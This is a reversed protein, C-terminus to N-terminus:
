LEVALAVLEIVSPCLARTSLEACDLAIAIPNPAPPPEATEDVFEIAIPVEAEYAVPVVSAIAIPLPMVADLSSVSDVFFM